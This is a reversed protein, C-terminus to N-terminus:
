TLFITWLVILVAIVGAARAFKAARRRLALGHESLLEDDIYARSDIENEQEILRRAVESRPYQEARGHCIMVGLGNAAFGLGLLIGLGARFSASIM